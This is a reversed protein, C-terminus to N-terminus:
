RRHGLGDSGQKGKGQLVGNEGNEGPADNGEPPTNSGDAVENEGVATAMEGTGETEGVADKSTGQKSSHARRANHAEVEQIRHTM